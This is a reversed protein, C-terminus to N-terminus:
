NKEKLSLRSFFLFGLIIAIWSSPSMITYNYMGLFLVLYFMISAAAVNLRFSYLYLFCWFLIGFIAGFFNSSHLLLSPFPHVINSYSAVDGVYILFFDTRFFNYFYEVAPYNFFTFIKIMPFGFLVTEYPVSKISEFTYNPLAFSEASYRALSNFPSIVINLIRDFGLILRGQSISISLLILFLFVLFVFVKQLKVKRRYFFIFSCWFINIFGARSLTSIEIFIHAIIFLVLLNAEGKIASYFAFVLSITSVIPIYSAIFNEQSTGIPNLMLDRIDSAGFNSIFNNLSFSLIFTSFTLCLYGIIRLLNDVKDTFQHNHSLKSISFFYFPFIIFPYLISIYSYDSGFPVKFLFYANFISTIQYLFM